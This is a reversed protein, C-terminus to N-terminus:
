MFPRINKNKEVNAVFEYIEDQVTIQVTISELEKEIKSSLRFQFYGFYTQDPFITTKDFYNTKVQSQLDNAQQIINGNRAALDEQASKIAKQRLYESQVTGSTRTTSNYLGSHTTSYENYSVNGAQNANITSSIGGLGSFFLAWNKNSDIKDLCEAKEIVDIARGCQDFVKVDNISVNFHSESLNKIGVLFESKRNKTIDKETYLIVGNKKETILVAKGSTYFVEGDIASELSFKTGGYAYSSIFLALLLTTKTLAKMLDM